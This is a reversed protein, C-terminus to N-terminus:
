NLSPVTTSLKAKTITILANLPLEDAVPRDTMLAQSNQQTATQGSCRQGRRM